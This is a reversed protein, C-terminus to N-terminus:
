SSRKFVKRLRFFSLFSSKSPMIFTHPRRRSHVKQKEEAVTEKEQQERDSFQNICGHATCTSVDEKIDVSDEDSADSVDIDLSNEQTHLTYEIGAPVLREKETENASGMVLYQQQQQEREQQEEHQTKQIVHEANKTTTHREENVHVDGKIHGAQKNVHQAGTKLSRKYEKYEKYTYIDSARLTIKNAVFDKRPPMPVKAM